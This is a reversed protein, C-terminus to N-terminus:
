PPPSTASRTSAATGGAAEGLAGVALGRHERWVKIPHEGEVMRHVREAPILEEEGRELKGLVERAAALDAAGEAQELLALYEAEPVVVLREGAPTVILRPVTM